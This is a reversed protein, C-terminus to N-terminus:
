LIEKKIIEASSGYVGRLNNVMSEAAQESGMTTVLEKEEDGRKVLIKWERDSHQANLTTTM